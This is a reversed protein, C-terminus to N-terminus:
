SLEFLQRGGTSVILVIALYSISARRGVSINLMLNVHIKKQIHGTQRVTPKVM